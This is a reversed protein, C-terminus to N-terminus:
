VSRELPHDIQVVVPRNPLFNSYPYDIGVMLLLDASKVANYVPKSGIFGIGGM